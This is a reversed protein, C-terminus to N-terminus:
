VSKSDKFRLTFEAGISSSFSFQADIQEALTIILQMGLTHGTRPDFEPSLGIGDDRVTLQLWGDHSSHLGVWVTGKTQNPFGHKLANTILENLILGCPIATDVGVWTEELDLVLAISAPNIGSTGCVVSVLSEAYESLPVSAFNKSLYLQEHILAITKVRISCERLASAAEPNVMGSVQLNILSSIVQLNNKVRHHVEQLLVDRERLQAHLAQDMQKRETIDIVSGLVYHGKATQMPNLQIELPIETQDKRLGYLERGATKPRATSDNSFVERLHAHSSRYRAPVLLEVPAGILETRSYQFLREIQANVLVILGDDDVVIMGTPSAELVLRFPDDDPTSRIM